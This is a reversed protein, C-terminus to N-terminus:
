DAMKSEALVNKHEALIPSLLTDIHAYLHGQKNVKRGTVAELNCRHTAGPLHHDFSPQSIFTKACVQGYSLTHPGQSGPTWRTLM